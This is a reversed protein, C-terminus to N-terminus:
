KEGGITVVEALKFHKDKSLPRTEVIRVTDGVVAVVGATDVKYKKSHKILKRYLKHPRKEVVEVVVTQPMGTSVVLGKLVKAM